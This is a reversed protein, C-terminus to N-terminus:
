NGRDDYSVANQDDSIRQSPPAASLKSNHTKFTFQEEARGKSEQSRVGPKKGGFSRGASRRLM